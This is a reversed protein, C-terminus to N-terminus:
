IALPETERGLARRRRRERLLGPLHLAASTAFIGWLVGTVFRRPNDLGGGSAGLLVDLPLALALLLSLSLSPVRKKFVLWCLLAVAGLAIGSCRWCLPLQTGFLHPSRAPLQHCCWSGAFM